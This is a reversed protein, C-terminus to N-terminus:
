IPLRDLHGADRMHEWDHSPVSLIRYWDDENEGTGLEHRKVSPGEERLDVVRNVTMVEKTAKNRWEYQM